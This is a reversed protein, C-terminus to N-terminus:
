IARLEHMSQPLESRKWGSLTLASSVVATWPTPNDQRSGDTYWEDCPVERGRNERSAVMAIPIPLGVCETIDLLVELELSASPCPKGRKGVPLYSEM